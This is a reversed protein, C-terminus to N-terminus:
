NDGAMEIASVNDETFDELTRFEDGHNFIYWLTCTVLWSSGGGDLLTSLEWYWFFTDV